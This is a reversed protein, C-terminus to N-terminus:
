AATAAPEEAGGFVPAVVIAVIIDGGSMARM